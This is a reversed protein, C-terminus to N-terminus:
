RRIKRPTTKMTRGDLAACIAVASGHTQLAFPPQRFVFPPLNKVKGGSTANLVPRALLAPRPLLTAAAVNRLALGTASGGPVGPLGAAEPVAHWASGALAPDPGAM